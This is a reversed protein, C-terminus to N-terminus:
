REAGASVLAWFSWSSNWQECTCGLLAIEAIANTLFVFVLAVVAFSDCDRLHGHLMATHHPCNAKVEVLLLWCGAERDLWRAWDLHAMRGMGPGCNAAVARKASWSRSELSELQGAELSAECPCALSILFGGRVLNHQLWWLQQVAVELLDMGPYTQSPMQEWQEQWSTQVDSGSMSNSGPLPLSHMSGASPLSLVWPVLDVSHAQVEVQPRQRAEVQRLRAEVQRRVMAHLHM